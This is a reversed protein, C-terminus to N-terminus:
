EIIRADINLQGAVPTASVTVVKAGIFLLGGPDSALGAADWLEKAEAALTFTGSAHLIDTGAKDGAQGGIYSASFLADSVATVVSTALNISYIGVKIALTPTGNSDMDESKIYLNRMLSTSPLGCLIVLDGVDDISTTAIPISHSHSKIPNGFFKGNGVTLDAHTLRQVNTALVTSATM